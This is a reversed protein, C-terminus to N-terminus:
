VRGPLSVPQLPLDADVLPQPLEQEQKGPADRGAQAQIGGQLARVGSIRSMRPAPLPRFRAGRGGSGDAPGTPRTPLPRREPGTDHDVVRRVVGGAAEPQIARLEPAGADDGGQAPQRRARPVSTMSRSLPLGLLSSPRRRRTGRTRARARRALQRDADLVDLQQVVDQALAAQQLVGEVREDIEDGDHVLLQADDLGVLRERRADPRFRDSMMRRGSLSSTPAPCAPRRPPPPCTAPRDHRRDLPAHVVCSSSPVNRSVAVGSVLWSPWVSPRTSTARSMVRCVRSSASRAASRSRRVCDSFSADSPWNTAPMACSIFLGSCPTIPWRSSSISM